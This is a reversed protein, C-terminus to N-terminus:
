VPQQEQQTLEQLLASYEEPHETRLIGLWARAGEVFAPLEMKAHLHMAVYVPDNYPLQRPQSDTQSPSANVPNLIEGEATEQDLAKVPNRSQGETMGDGTANVPNLSPSPAASQHPVEAEVPAAGRKRRPAKVRNLVKDAEARQQEQPLRGIRRGEKVPLEKSEVKQQLDASLELLALRQSVWAGSKGLRRAVEEQTGYKVLLQQIARAQDVPPVDVRHVNAVLAAELTDEASSVLDDNVDIRLETLGALAAAALRRNGDIVVYDADGIAEERGPHARLFAERRAVSVPQIQGKARLSAATEEIETLEARPNEPNHALASLPVQAPPRRGEGAAIQSRTRVKSRPQEEDVSFGRRVRKQQTM